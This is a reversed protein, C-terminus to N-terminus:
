IFNILMIIKHPYINYIFFPTLSCITISTEHHLVVLVPVPLSQISIPDTHTIMIIINYSSSAHWMYYYYFNEKNM